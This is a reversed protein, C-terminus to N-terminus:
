KFPKIVIFEVWCIFVNIGPIFSPHYFINVKNKENIQLSIIQSSHLLGGLYNWLLYNWRLFVDASGEDQFIKINQKKYLSAWISMGSIEDVFWACFLTYYITIDKDCFFNVNIKCIRHCFQYHEIQFSNESFIPFHSKPLVSSLWMKKNLPLAM